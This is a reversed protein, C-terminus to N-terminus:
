GIPRAIAKHVEGTEPDVLTTGETAGPEICDRHAGCGPCQELRFSWDTACNHCRWTKINMAETDARAESCDDCEQHDRLKANEVGLREVEALLADYDLGTIVAPWVGSLGAKRRERIASLTEPTM